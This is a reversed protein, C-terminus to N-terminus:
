VNFSIFRGDNLKRIPAEAKASSVSEEFLLLKQSIKM